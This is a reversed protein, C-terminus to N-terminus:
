HFHPPRTNKYLTQQNLWQAFNKWQELSFKNATIQIVAWYTNSGTKYAM